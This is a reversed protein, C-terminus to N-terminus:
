KDSVSHQSCAAGTNDTFIRGPIRLQHISLPTHTLAILTHLYGM